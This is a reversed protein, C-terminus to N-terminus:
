VARGVSALLLQAVPLTMAILLFGCGPALLAIDVWREKTLWGRSGGAQLTDGGYATVM